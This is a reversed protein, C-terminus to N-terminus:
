IRWQRFKKIVYCHEIPPLFGGHLHQISVDPCISSTKPVCALFWSSEDLRKSVTASKVSLRISPCIVVAYVVSAYTTDRPLFATSIHYHVAVIATTLIYDLVTFTLGVDSLGVEPLRDIIGCRQM